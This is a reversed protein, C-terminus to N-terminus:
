FLIDEDGKTFEAAANKLTKGKCKTCGGEGLTDMYARTLWSHCRICEPVQYNESGCNGCHLTTAISHGCATCQYTLKGGCCSCFPDVCQEAIRPGRYFGRETWDAGSCKKNTCIALAPSSSPGRTKMGSELARLFEEATRYREGPNTRCARDITDVISRPVDVLAKAINLRDTSGTLLELFMVGISFIDTRNDVTTPENLQEPSMYQPTGMQDGAKTARTLGAEGATSVGISFDIIFCRANEGVMINAPKLDRHLVSRSHAYALARLVQCIYNTSVDLPLKRSQILIERLSKGEVYEMIFYPAQGFSTDVYGKTLVYPFGSHQFKALLRAERIFRKHATASDRAFASDFFKIAVKRNLSPQLALYVTGSGGRGIVKQLTFGRRGLAIVYEPPLDDSGV